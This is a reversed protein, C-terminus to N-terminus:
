FGKGRMCSGFLIARKEAIKEQAEHQQGLNWWIPGLDGLVLKGVHGPPRPAHGSRERV